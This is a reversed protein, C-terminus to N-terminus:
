LPLASTLLHHSNISPKDHSSGINLCPAFPHACPIHSAHMSDPILVHWGLSHGKPMLVIKLQLCVLILLHPFVGESLKRM